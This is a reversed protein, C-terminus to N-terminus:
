TSSRMTKQGCTGCSFKWKDTEDVLNVTVYDYGSLRLPGQIVTKWAFANITYFCYISLKKESNM